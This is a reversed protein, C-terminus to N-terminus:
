VDKIGKVVELIALNTKLFDARVTKILKEQGDIWEDKKFHVVACLYGRKDLAMRDYTIGFSYAKKMIRTILKYEDIGSANMIERTLTMSKSKQM